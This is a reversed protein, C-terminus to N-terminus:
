DLNPKRMTAYQLAAAGTFGDQAPVWYNCFPTYILLGNACTNGMNSSLRQSLTAKCSRLSSMKGFEFTSRDTFPYTYALKEFQDM